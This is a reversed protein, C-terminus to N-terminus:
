VVGAYRKERRNWWALPWLAVAAAAAPALWILDGLSRLSEGAPRGSFYAGALDPARFLLLFLLAGLVQRTVFGKRGKAKTKAWGARKEAESERLEGRFVTVFGVVAALMLALGAVARPTSGRPNQLGLWGGAFGSALLAVFYLAFKKGPM